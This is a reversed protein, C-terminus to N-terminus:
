GIELEPVKTRVKDECDDYIPSPCMKYDRADAVVKADVAQCDWFLGGLLVRSCIACCVSDVVSFTAFILEKNGTCVQSVVM